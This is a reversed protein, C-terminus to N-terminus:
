GEEPASGTNRSNFPYALTSFGGLEELENWSCTASSMGRVTARPLGAAGDRSRVGSSSYRGGEEVQQLIRDQVRGGRSAMSTRAVACAGSDMGPSQRM